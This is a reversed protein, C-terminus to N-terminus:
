ITNLSVISLMTLPCLIAIFNVKLITFSVNSSVILYNFKRVIHSLLYYVRYDTMHFYKNQKWIKCM